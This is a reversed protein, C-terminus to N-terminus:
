VIPSSDPGAEPPLPSEGRCVQELVQEAVFVPAGVRVALAVADSPRSDVEVTEGNRSLVLRAYFTSNRLACVEIRSLRAGLREVVAALLDHTLPRLTQIERVKRDIAAAEVIGILIPFQRVGGRERLWIVQYDSTETILIKSLEMEVM